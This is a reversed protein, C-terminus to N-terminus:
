PKKYGRDKFLCYQHVWFDCASCHFAYNFDTIGEVTRECIGCIQSGVTLLGVSALPHPHCPADDVTGGFKFKSFKGLSPICNVHFYNDCELCGYFWYRLDINKECFECLDFLNLDSSSSQHQLFITHGKTNLQLPHKDFKHSVLRPLLACRIHIKYDCSVCQYFYIHTLYNSKSCCGFDKIKLRIGFTTTLQLIHNKHSEHMIIRPASACEVDVFSIGHRKVEFAYGFGNFTRQCYDCYFVHFFGRCSTFLYMPSNLPKGWIELPLNACIEHVLFHCNSKSCSYYPTASSIPQICSNCVEEEEVIENDGDHFILPHNHCKEPTMRATSSTGDLTAKSIILSPFVTDEMSPPLPVIFERSEEPTLDMLASKMCKIHAGISCARCSYVGHNLPMDEGCIKCSGWSFNGKPFPYSYLLVYPHVHSPHKAVPPLSACDQHLWYDCQQCSFFIDKEEEGCAICQACMERHTPTLPHQRHSRHLTGMENPFACLPHLGVNQKIKEPCYAFGRCIQGCKLCMSGETPNPLLVFPNYVDSFSEKDSFSRPLDACHKHLFLSCGSVSCSYFPTEAFMMLGCIKCLKPREDDYDNNFILPHEHIFDKALM